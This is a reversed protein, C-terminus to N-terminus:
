GPLDLGPRKHQEAGPGGDPQGAGGGDGDHKTENSKAKEINTQDEPRGPAEAPATPIGHCIEQIQQMLCQLNRVSVSVQNRGQVLALQLGPKRTNPKRYIVWRTTETSHDLLIETGDSLKKM